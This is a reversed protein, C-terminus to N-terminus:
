LLVTWRVGFEFWFMWNLGRRFDRGGTLCVDGWCLLWVLM